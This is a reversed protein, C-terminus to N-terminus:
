GRKQPNQNRDNMMEKENKKKEDVRGGGGMGERGFLFAKQNRDICAYMNCGVGM